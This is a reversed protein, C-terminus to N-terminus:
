LGTHIVFQTRAKEPLTDKLIKIAVLMNEIHINEALYVEAFGGEGLKEKLRYVGVQQGILDVM